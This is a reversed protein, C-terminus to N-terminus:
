GKWNPRLHFLGDDIVTQWPWILQRACHKNKTPAVLYSLPPLKIRVPAPFVERSKRHKGLKESFYEVCVSDATDESPMIYQISLSNKVINRPGFMAVPVTKPEDRVFRVIGGQIFAVARGTKATRSLAEYVTLKSDYVANFADGRATWTQDM